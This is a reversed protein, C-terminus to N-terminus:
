RRLASGVLDSIREIGGREMIRLLELNIDRFVTPGVFPVATVIQTASAGLALRDYQEVGDAIGGSSIIPVRGFLEAAVATLAERSKGKLPRGSIGGKESPRMLLKKDISTNTLIIGNVGASVAEKCLEVMKDIEMDPSLKLLIPKNTVQRLSAVVEKIFAANLLKRLEETNPSSVNVVIYDCYNSVYKAVFVYDNIAQENPTKSNKGINAGIPIRAPYAKQMRKSIEAAGENNFGMWNQLAEEDVHRFERPRPNGGQPLPTIAGIEAAAAGMMEAAHIFKSPKDWGPGLCVPTKFPLTFLRQELRRSEVRLNNEILKGYIPIRAVAELSHFGVTHADEPSLQFLVPRAVQKYFKAFAM